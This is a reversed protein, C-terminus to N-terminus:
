VAPQNPFAYVGIATLVAAAIQLVAGATDGPGVYVLAAQVLAGGLGVWFKAKTTKSM